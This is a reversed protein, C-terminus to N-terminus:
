RFPGASGIHHSSIIVSLRRQVKQKEKGRKKGPEGSGNGTALSSIRRGHFLTNRPGHSNGCLIHRLFRKTCLLEKGGNPTRDEASTGYFGCPYQSDINSGEIERPDTFFQM